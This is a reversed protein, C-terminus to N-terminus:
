ASGTTSGSGQGQVPIPPKLLVTGIGSPSYLSSLGPPGAHGGGPGSSDVQEEADRSDKAAGAMESLDPRPARPKNWKAKAVALRGLGVM